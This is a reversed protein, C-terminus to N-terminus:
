YIPEQAMLGRLYGTAVAGQSSAASVSIHTILRDQILAPFDPVPTHFAYTLRLHGLLAAISLVSEDQV